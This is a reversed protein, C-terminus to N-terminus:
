ESRCGQAVGLCPDMLWAPLRAAPGSESRVCAGASIHLYPAILIKVAVFGLVAALGYKINSFQELAEALIFYLSRRM